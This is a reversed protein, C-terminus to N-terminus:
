PASDVTFANSHAPTYTTAGSDATYPVSIRYRGPIGFALSDSFQGGAPLRSPGAGSECLYLGGYGSPFWAGNASQVDAAFGPGAGACDLFYLTGESRNTAVFHVMRSDSASVSYRAADTAIVLGPKPGTASCAVMMLLTPAARFHRMIGVRM